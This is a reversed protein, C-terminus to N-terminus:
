RTATSAATAVPADNTGTVTVTLTATATGGEGDSVACPAAVALTQGAKLNQYAANTPDFSYGRNAALTLGAVPSRNATPRPTPAPPTASTRSSGGSTALVTGVALTGIVAGAVIAGSSLGGHAAMAGAGGGMAGAEGAPTPGATDTSAQGETSTTQSSPQAQAAPLDKSGAVADADAAATYATDDSSSEDAKAVRRKGPIAIPRVTAVDLLAAM